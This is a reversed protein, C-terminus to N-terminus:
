TLSLTGEFPSSKFFLFLGAPRRPQPQTSIASQPAPIVVLGVREDTLVDSHDDGIGIADAGGPHVPGGGIALPFYDVRTKSFLQVGVIETVLM